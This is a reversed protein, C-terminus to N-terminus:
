SQRVKEILDKLEAVIAVLREIGPERRVDGALHSHISAWRKIGEGAASLLDLEADIRDDIRALRQRMPGHWSETADILADLRAFERADADSAGAVLRAQIARRQAILGNRFDIDDALPDKVARHLEVRSVRVIERLSQIDSTLLRAINQIAPDTTQIAQSLSAAARAEAAAGYLSAIVGLADQGIGIGPAVGAALASVSAALRRASDGGSRGADVVDALADTYASVAAMAESRKNWAQNLREGLADLRDPDTSGESATILDRRALDGSQQIARQLDATADALPRLDPPSACGVFGITVLAVLALLGVMVSLERAKM